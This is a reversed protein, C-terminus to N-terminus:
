PAKKKLYKMQDNLNKEKRQLDRQLIGRWPRDFMDFALPRNRPWKSTWNSKMKLNLSLFLEMDM